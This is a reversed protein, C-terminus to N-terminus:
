RGTSETPITGTSGSRRPPMSTIPARRRTRCARAPERTSSGARFTLLASEDYDAQDYVAAFIAEAQWDLDQTSAGDFGGEPTKATVDVGVSEFSVKEIKPDEVPGEVNTLAADVRDNPSANAPWEAVPDAQRGGSGDGGGSEDGSSGIAAILGVVALGGLLWVFWRNGGSTSAPAMAVADGNARAEAPGSEM